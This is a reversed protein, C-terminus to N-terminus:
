NRKRTGHQKEMQIRKLPQAVAVAALGWWIISVMDDVWVPLLLGIIALGIGSSFLGLALASRRRRWLGKLISVYLWAFLLLGLWGVEHAILLYQNEIILPQDGLLSASGTSGIGAGLPQHVMRDIGEALSEAHGANSDVDAGTTPNNHLIVNQVFLTDRAVFLAGAVVVALGALLVGTRKKWTANLAIFLVLLVAVVAAIASSRSYTANLVILSAVLGGAAMMWGKRGLRWRAIIAALVSIVIVIYAGLPNPGRLTSNIRIYDHNEDVTLYPSITEKSYGINALFDKPLAVVQLLAFGVVVIAGSMLAAIFLRRYDPFLRIFGYILVFYLVYRLDILLGAGVAAVSGGNAGFVAVMLFHLGAYALSLQMLRDGLLRNVMRQQVALLVLLVLGVGMLLEKWSKIVLEYAPAQLGLWLTLPTHIAMGLAIVVLIGALTRELLRPMM